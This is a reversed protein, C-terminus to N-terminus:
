IFVYKGSKGRSYKRVNKDVSYIFYAFVPSIKDLNLLFNNKFSHKDLNFIEIENKEVANILKIQNNKFFFNLNYFYNNFFSDSSDYKVEALPICKFQYFYNKLINRLSKDKKGQRTILNFLKLLPLEFSSRRLSHSNKFCVPVDVM